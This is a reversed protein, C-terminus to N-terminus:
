SLSSDENKEKMVYPSTMLQLLAPYTINFKLIDGVKVKSENVDLIMHDSSGGLIKINDDIPKLEEIIVDQRGIAVIARTHLGRDEFQKIKGFADTGRKGEPSSPKVKVEIVETSLTFIDDQLGPITIGLATDKGLFLAEGLRLQNINKPFKKEALLHLTNSNGGSIVSVEHSLEDLIKKKLRLLSNMKDINPLVGGYCGLNTGIGIWEINKRSLIFKGIEVIDKPLVGERLDGMEVMLIIRHKISVKEAESNLKSITEIETALSTDAYLIVDSTENLSPLRLLMTKCEKSVNKIKKINEIRSDAIESIGEDILVKIIEPLACISKTVPVWKIHNGQDKFFNNLFVINNRLKEENWQLKPFSNM